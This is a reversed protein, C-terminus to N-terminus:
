MKHQVFTKNLKEMNTLKVGVIPVNELIQQLLHALQVLACGAFGHQLRQGEVVVLQLNGNANM